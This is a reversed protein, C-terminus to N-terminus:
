QELIARFLLIPDSPRGYKDEVPPELVIPKSTIRITSHRPLVIEKKGSDNYIGHAGKAMEIAIINYGQEAIISPDISCKVYGNFFYKKSLQYNSQNTHRYATLAIPIKVQVMLNDLIRVLEAYEEHRANKGQMLSQNIKDLKGSFLAGIANKQDDDIDNIIEHNYDRLTQDIHKVEGSSILTKSPRDKTQDLKIDEKGKWNKSKTVKVPSHFPILRGNHALYTVQGSKGYRGFGFYELGMSQAQAKITGQKAPQSSIENLFEKLKVLEPNEIFSM